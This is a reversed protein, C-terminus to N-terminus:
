KTKSRRGKWEKQGLLPNLLEWKSDKKSCRMDRCGDDTRLSAGLEDDTPCSIPDLSEKKTGKSKKRVEEDRTLREKIKEWRQKPEHSASAFSDSRGSNLAPGITNSCTWLPHTCHILPVAVIRHSTEVHTRRREDPHPCPLMRKWPWRCWWRLYSHIALFEFNNWIIRMASKLVFLQFFGFSETLLSIFLNQFISRVWWRIWSCESCIFSVCRIRSPHFAIWTRSTMRLLFFHATNTRGRDAPKLVPSNTLRASM